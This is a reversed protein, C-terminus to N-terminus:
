KKFKGCYTEVIELVDGLDEVVDDKERAAIFEGSEEILKTKLLKRLEEDGAIRVKAKYGKLLKNKSIEFNKKATVEVQNPINDRM